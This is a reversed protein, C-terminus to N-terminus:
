GSNKGKIKWLTKFVLFYKRTLQQTKSDAIQTNLDKKLGNLRKSRETNVLRVTELTIESSKRSNSSLLSRFDEDNQNVDERPRDSEPDVEM